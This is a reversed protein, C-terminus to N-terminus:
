YRERSRRPYPKGFKNRHKPIRVRTLVMKIELPDTVPLELDLTYSEAREHWVHLTGSGAPLGELSFTGDRNPSTFYPTDLVMVYAAMDHHVNCFIQVVGPEEFTHEKGEDGKRYLGLDFRNEGSVSFVNHLIPDENPFRITSGQPVALVHPLFDKRVTVMEFEEPPASEATSEPVYYIITTNVGREERGKKDVLEVTGRLEAAEAIVSLAVSLISFLVVLRVIRM